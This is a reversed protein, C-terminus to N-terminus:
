KAMVDVYRGSKRPKKQGPKRTAAVGLLDDISSANSMSTAPRSPPRSPPGGSSLGPPGGPPASALGSHSASRTMAPPPTSSSPPPPPTAKKAETNEAGPKKNIWRKLDPDYVFSSAEGLKARIPKGPSSAEGAGAAAKKGGGGFWGSFGWGKKAPQQAAARKAIPAHQDARSGTEVPRLQEKGDEEAAKRFMEENERDKEAKSKTAARLAPIDDEDDDMFSKKKPKPAEDGDEPSPEPDPHYSPPEYSYPQYSPPEFGGSGSADKGDQSDDVKIVNQQPEYGYTPPEYGQGPTYVTAEGGVKPSTISPSGQPELPQYGGASPLQTVSSPGHGNPVGPSFDSLSPQSGAGVATSTVPAYPNSNLTPSPNTGQHMPEYANRSYENSARGSSVSAPTYQSTPSFPKGLAASQMPASAYRSSAGSTPPPAPNAAYGPSGAGYTEFNSVSPSRSMNPITTLHAFPGSEGEGAAGNGAVDGEDGAVFRNFRNWVSDSVKNMSPKSIWSSSADKPAQKLRTMFDDVAAELIAHHHHSRRTQSVMASTIADCYQLVKDRNGYDALTAAHQLKYAAIHPAGATAAAGGALSLGYEYVESLQLAETEKAFHESQQRHDSGLLVFDAKPDDLGSFVSLNRSFIFCIHAAEARGYSSLLKGLANLGRVDDSSRNNLILTLTERWKDLGDVADRTPELASQKSVLQLGVRAHIPVLEDVCDDSNGSFVKYLAAISENKHGPFNVEKRVFEQAVQKYLDPSVTHSILMAHGWLRKDVASWMATERNGRLLDLRIQEVAAPDASDAMMSTVPGTQSPGASAAPMAAAGDPVPPATEPALVDRVAKEVNANGELAGDFEIFVRLLKWLLLREVGRKAELSLQSHLPVDPIDREQADIGAALWALAEKKKSKGKLPGPFRALRDALPDVDRVNQVKVEGATRQITPAAQNM